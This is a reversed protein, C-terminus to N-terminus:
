VGEAGSIKWPMIVSTGLLSNTHKSVRIPCSYNGSEIGDRNFRLLISSTDKDTEGKKVARVLSELVPLSLAVLFDSDKKEPILHKFRPYHGYLRDMKISGNQSNVLLYEDNFECTVSYIKSKIVLKLFNILRNSDKLNFEFSDAKLTGSASFTIESTYLVTGNTAALTLGGEVSRSINVSSLINDVDACNKYIGPQVIELAKLLNRTDLCIKIKDDHDDNKM